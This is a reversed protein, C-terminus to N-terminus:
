QKKNLSYQMWIMFIIIIVWNTQKISFEMEKFLTECELISLLFITILFSIMCLNEEIYILTMGVVYIHNDTKGECKLSQVEIRFKMSFAMLCNQSSFMAEALGFWQMMNIYYLSNSTKISRNDWINKSYLGGILWSVHYFILLLYCLDVDNWFYWTFSTIKMM